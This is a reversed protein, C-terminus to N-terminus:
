DFYPADDTHEEFNMLSDLEGDDDTYRDWPNRFPERRRSRIQTMSWRMLNGPATIISHLPRILDTDFAWPKAKRAQQSERRSIEPRSMLRETGRDNENADLQIQGDNPM